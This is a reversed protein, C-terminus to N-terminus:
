FTLYKGEWAGVLKRITFRDLMRYGTLITCNSIRTHCTWRGAKYDIRRPEMWNQVLVESEFLAFNMVKGRQDPYSYSKPFGCFTLEEM